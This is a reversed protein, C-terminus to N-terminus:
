AEKAKEVGIKRTKTAAVKQWHVEYIRIPEVFGKPTINGVNSFSVVEDNCLDHVLEAVIIQGPEAHACLRAALNVAKGYLDGSEEIPEGATVGIRVYLEENPNEQNYTEFALQIAITCRAADSVSNFSAMFGDGTHKVENGKHERLVNRTLANHVRLLHMAKADGFMTSMLTSDKLDTFVITRFASDIHPEVQPKVPEPDKVRGLFAEVISPEVEIIEHPVSGHAENHANQLAVKSPAEILCFSTHREEDFWYTLFKCNHKDQIALDKEHANTIAQRTADEIYHRDMYIPM